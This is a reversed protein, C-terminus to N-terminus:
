VHHRLAALSQLLYPAFHSAAAEVTLPLAGERELSTMVVGDIGCPTIADFGGLAGSVNLAFGHMSIWRRAGVGISALKRGATAWVGTQGPSREAPVGLSHCGAMLGDELARLYHHLDQGYRALNLIPYGVLQGPGHWTAKGGRGIEVLPAPLAAPDGLSSRDPNRGITFVPDHELLLVTDAAEGALHRAVIEEQLALGWTYDVRGLWRIAPAPPLPVAASM